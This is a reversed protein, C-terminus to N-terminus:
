IGGGVEYQYNNAVWSITQASAAIRIRLSGSLGLGNVGIGSQIVTNDAGWFSTDWDTTDWPAGATSTSTTAAPVGGVNFDVKMEASVTVEGPSQFTIRALTFLKNQGPTGFYNFAPMGDSNIAVGEDSTGTDAKKVAGVNTGYYLENGFITWTNANIPSTGRGFSCWAGTTTNVVYQEARENEVTPINFIMFGGRPYVIAEWGWKSGHNRVDEEVAPAIIDSIAIDPRVDGTQIAKSMPIFGNETIIIMEAGLQSVFRRGIPAGITYIGELAWTNPSSPDTGSFM